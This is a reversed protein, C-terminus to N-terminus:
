PMSLSDSAPTYNVVIVEKSKTVRWENFSQRRDVKFRIYALIEHLLAGLPWKTDITRFWIGGGVFVGRRQRVTKPSPDLM